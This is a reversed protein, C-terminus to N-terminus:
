IAGARVVARRSPAPDLGCARAAIQEADLAPDGRAVNAGHLRLLKPPVGLAQGLERGSM